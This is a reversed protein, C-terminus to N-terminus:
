RRMQDKIFPQGRTVLRKKGQKKAAGLGEDARRFLSAFTDGASFEAVGCSVTPPSPPMGSATAPPQSIATMIEPLRREAERLTLNSAAVAFEDGGIRAVVDGIRVQKALVRGIHRLVEDGAPHGFGDNIQKFDDVDFIALSFCPQSRRMWSQCTQEFARRNAIGTLPDTLAQTRSEELQRELLTIHTSLGRATDEWRKRREVVLTKLTIVEAILRSKIQRPDAIRGIAEFRDTSDALGTHLMAMETDVTAVMDHVIGVLTTMDQMRVAHQEQRRALLDRGASMCSAGLQAIEAPSAAAAIATRCSEFRTALAVREPDEDAALFDRILTLASDLLATRVSDASPSVGRLDLEILTENLM